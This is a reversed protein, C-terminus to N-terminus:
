LEKVKKKAVPNYTYNLFFTKFQNFNFDFWFLYTVKKMISLLPFDSLYVQYM